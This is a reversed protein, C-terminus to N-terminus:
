KLEEKIFKDIEKVLRNTYKISQFTIGGSGYATKLNDIHDPSLDYVRIYESYRQQLFFIIYGPNFITTQLEASADRIVVSGSNVMKLYRNPNSNSETVLKKKINKMIAKRGRKGDQEKKDILSLILFIVIGTLIQKDSM